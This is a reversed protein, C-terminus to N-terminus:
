ASVETKFIAVGYANQIPPNTLAQLAPALTTANWQTAPQTVIPTVSSCTGVLIKGSDSVAFVESSTVGPEPNIGAPLELRQLGTAQTWVGAFDDALVAVISGDYSFATVQSYGAAIGLEHAHGDATWIIARNNTGDAAYANGGILKGDGSIAFAFSHAAGSPMDMEQFGTAATWRFVSHYTDTIGQGLASLFEGTASVAMVAGDSSLGRCYADSGGIPSYNPAGLNEGGTEITWRFVNITPQGTYTHVSGRGDGVIIKGNHSVGRAAGDAIWYQMQLVQVMDKKKRDWLVPQNYDQGVIISGDGSIAYAVGPVTADALRPLVVQKGGNHWYVPASWGTVPDVDSGVIVTNWQTTHNAEATVRPNPVFPADIRITDHGFTSAVTIVTGDPMQVRRSLQQLKSFEMSKKLIDLQLTAEGTYARALAADGTYGKRLSISAM